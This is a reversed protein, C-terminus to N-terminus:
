GRYIMKPVKQTIKAIETHMKQIIQTCKKANKIHKIFFIKQTCKEEIKQTKTFFM